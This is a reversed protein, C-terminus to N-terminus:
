ACLGLPATPTWTPFIASGSPAGGRTTLVEALVTRYDNLVTLDGEPGDVIQNVFSGYVGGRVQGGMVLM